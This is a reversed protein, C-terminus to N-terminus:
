RRSSYTNILAAFELLRRERVANAFLAPHKQLIATADHSGQAVAGSLGEELPNFGELRKVHLQHKCLQRTIEPVVIFAM